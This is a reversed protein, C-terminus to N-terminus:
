VPRTFLVHRSNFVVCRSNFMVCRSSSSSEFLKWWRRGEGRSERPAEPVIAM